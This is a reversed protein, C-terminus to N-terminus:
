FPIEKSEMEFRVADKVMWLSTKRMAEDIADWVDEGVTVQCKLAVRGRISNITKKTQYLCKECEIETLGYGFMFTFHGCELIVEQNPHLEVIKRIPMIIM